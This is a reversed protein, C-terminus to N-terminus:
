LPRLARGWWELQELMATVASLEFVGVMVVHLETFVARLQEAAGGEGTPSVFAVPKARWDACSSITERLVPSLEGPPAVLVFAEAAALRASFGLVSVVVGGRGRAQDAVWAGVPRDETVVAVRLPQKNV